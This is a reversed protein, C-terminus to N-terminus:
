NKEYINIRVKTTPGGNNDGSRGHPSSPERIEQFFFGVFRYGAPVTAGDKVFVLVGPFAGISTPGPPGPPGAPGTAGAPGPVGQPGQPGAPGQPGSAGMPGSLVIAVSATASGTLGTSPDTATCTLAHSGLALIAGSVYPNGDAKCIPTGLTSTVAFQITGGSPNFTVVPNAVTLTVEPPTALRWMKATGYMQHAYDLNALGAIAGADNVDTADSFRDAPALPELEIMGRAATWSFARRGLESGKSSFGVVQGNANVANAGSWQGGLTGLDVMGNAASWIFAHYVEHGFADVGASAQGVVQGSENVASAMTFGYRVPDGFLGLDVMGTAATWSFARSGYGTRDSSGVVQGGNNVAVATGEPGGLTGLDVMGSAATWMFPHSEFTATASQGVVIQGNASIATAVSQGGGLSGLDTMGNATTWLFARPGAQGVVQGGDAVATANSIKAGDGLVGLDVIGGAVTWSFAHYYSEEGVTSWGVVQGNANMATVTTRGGDLGFYYVQDPTWYFGRTFSGAGVTGAANGAADITVITGPQLQLQLDTAVPAQQAAAVVTVVTPRGDGLRACLTLLWTAAKRTHHTRM